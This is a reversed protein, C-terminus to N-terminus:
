MWHAPILSLVHVFLLELQEIFIIFYVSIVNKTFIFDQSININQVNEMLYIFCNIGQSMKLIPM